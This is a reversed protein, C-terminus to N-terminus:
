KIISIQGVADRDNFKDDFCRKGEFNAEDGTPDCLWGTLALFMMTNQFAFSIERANGFKATGVVTLVGTEQDVDRGHLYAQGGSFGNGDEPCGAPIKGEEDKSLLPAWFKWSSYAKDGVIKNKTNNKCIAPSSLAKDTLNIKFENKALDIKEDPLVNPDNPSTQPKLTGTTFAMHFIEDMAPYDGLPGYPNHIYTPAFFRLGMEEFTIRGNVSYRGTDVDKLKQPKGIVECLKSHEGGNERSVFAPSDIRGGSTYFFACAGKGGPPIGADSFRKVGYPDCPNIVECDSIMDPRKEAPGAPGPYSLSSTFIRWGNAKTDDPVNPYDDYIGRSGKPLSADFPLFAYDFLFPDDYATPVPHTDLARFVATVGDGPRSLVEKGDSTTITMEDFPDLIMASTFVQLDTQKMKGSKLADAMDERSSISSLGPFEPNLMAALSQTIRLVLHGARPNIAAYLRARLNMQRFSGDPNKVPLGAPDLEMATVVITAEHLRKTLPAGEDRHFNICGFLPMTAINYAGPTLDYGPPNLSVPKLDFLENTVSGTSEDVIPVSCRLGKGSPPKVASIKEATDLLRFNAADAGEISISTIRLTKSSTDTVRLFVPIALDVTAPTVGKFPFSEGDMVRKAGSFTRFFLELAPSEQITTAGTVATTITGISTVINITARDRAESGVGAQEGNAGYLDSPEYTVVVYLTTEDYGLHFPPLTQPLKTGQPTKGALAAAVQERITEFNNSRFIANPPIKFEGRSHSGKVDEIKIDTVQMDVAGKNRIALVQRRGALAASGSGKIDISLMPAANAEKLKCKSDVEGIPRGKTSIPLLECATQSPDPCPACDTWSKVEGCKTERCSFFGRENGASVSAAGVNIADVDPVIKGTDDIANISGAGSKKLAVGTLTFQDIGIALIESSPGEKANGGPRFTVNLVFSQSPNITRSLPDISSLYFSGIRPPINISQPKNGINKVRFKASAEFRDGVDGAEEAIFTGASVEMKSELPLPSETQKGDMTIYLKKVEIAREGSGGCQSLPPSISGKFSATMSAGKLYKDAADITHGLVTGAVLSMAGSVDPPSGSIQPLHPLEGTQGTTLTLNPVEGVVGLAVIFLSFKEISMNGSADVSGEGVNSAGDANGRANITIPAPLGHGEVKLDPFENGYIKARNGSIHIPFPPVEACLEDGQKAGVEINDGKIIVCLQSMFSPTCQRGSTSIGPEPARAKEEEKPPFYAPIYDEGGCSSLIASALLLAALCVLNLRFFRM